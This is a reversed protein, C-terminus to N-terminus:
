LPLDTTDLFWVRDGINLGSKDHNESAELAGIAVMGTCSISLVAQELSMGAALLRQLNADVLQTSGALTGDATQLSQGDSQLSHGAWEYTGPPLGAFPSADSITVVRDPALAVVLQCM